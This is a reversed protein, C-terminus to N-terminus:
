KLTLPDNENEGGAISAMFAFLKLDIDFAIFNGSGDCMQINMGNPHFAYWAGNCTRNSGGNGDPNTPALRCRNYDGWFLWDFSVTPSAMAQSLVYPGWSYAWLTRRTADTINDINESISTSEGLLMTKSTGDIIKSFAEARLRKLVQDDLSNGSPVADKKLTAHLPGRWGFDILTSSVDEALYWTNRGSVTARGANGRYSGTRYRLAGDPGGIPAQLASPLDSPCHYIDIFTERV